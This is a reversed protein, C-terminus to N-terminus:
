TSASASSSVVQAKTPLAPTTTTSGSFFGLGGPAVISVPKGNIIGQLQQTDLGAIRKIADIPSLKAGNNNTLAKFAEEHLKSFPGQWNSERLVTGIGQPAGLSAAVDAVVCLQEKTLGVIERLAQDPSLHSPRNKNTLAQFADKHFITFVGKWKNLIVSMGKFPGLKLSIEIIL